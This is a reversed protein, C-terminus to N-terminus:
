TGAGVKEAIWDFLAKFETASASRPKYENVGLGDAIADPVEIRQVIIPRAVDHGHARLFSAVQKARKQDQQGPAINMLYAYPKKTRNAREVIELSAEVDVDLPRCPVIVLEAAVIGAGSIPHARGPLDLFVWETGLTKLVGLQPQLTMANAALVVPQDKGNRRERWKSSTGQESDMDLVAAKHGAAVAQCALNISAASKGVGGKQQGLAIIHM